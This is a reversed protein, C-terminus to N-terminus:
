WFGLNEDTKTILFNLIPLIFYKKWKADDDNFDDDLSM